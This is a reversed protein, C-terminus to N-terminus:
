ALTSEIASQIERASRYGLVTIRIAFKIALINAVLFDHHAVSVRRRFGLREGVFQAPDRRTLLARADENFKTQPRRSQGDLRGEAKQPLSFTLSSAIPHLSAADM